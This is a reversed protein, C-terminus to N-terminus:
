NTINPYNSWPYKKLLNKFEEKNSYKDSFLPFPNETFKYKKTDEQIEMEYEVLKQLEEDSFM